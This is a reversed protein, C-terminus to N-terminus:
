NKEVGGILKGQKDKQTIRNERKLCQYFGRTQKEIERNEIDEMQKETYM